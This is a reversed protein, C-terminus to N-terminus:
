SYRIQIRPSFSLKRALRIAELELLDRSCRFSGAYAFFLYTLLLPTLIM